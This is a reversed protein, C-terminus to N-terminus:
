WIKCAVDIKKHAEVLKRVVKPHLTNSNNISRGISQCHTCYNSLKEYVVEVYFSVGEREVLIEDFLRQSLDIDVLVRAYYGFARKQPKM